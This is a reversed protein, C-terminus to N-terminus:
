YNAFAKRPEETLCSAELTSDVKLDDVMQTDQSELVITEDQPRTGVLQAIRDFNMKSWRAGSM